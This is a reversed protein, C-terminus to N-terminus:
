TYNQFVLVSSDSTCVFDIGEDFVLDQMCVRCPILSHVIKKACIHAMKENQPMEMALCDLVIGCKLM